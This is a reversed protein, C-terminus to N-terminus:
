RLMGKKRRENEIKRTESRRDKQIEVYPISIKEGALLMAKVKGINKFYLRLRRKLFEFDVVSTIGAFQEANKTYTQVVKM